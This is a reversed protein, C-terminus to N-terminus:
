LLGDTTAVLGLVSTFWGPSTEGNIDFYV